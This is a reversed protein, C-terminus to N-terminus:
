SSASVLVVKYIQQKENIEYEVLDGEQLGAEQFSKSNLCRTTFVSLLETQRMPREALYPLDDAITVFPMTM